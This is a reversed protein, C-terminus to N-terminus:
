TASAREDPFIWVLRSTLYAALPRAVGRETLSRNTKLESTSRPSVSRVARNNTWYDAESLRSEM